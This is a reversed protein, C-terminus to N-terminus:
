HLHQGPKTPDGDDVLVDAPLDERAVQRRGNALATAYAHEWAQIQERPTLHAVLNFLRPSPAMFIPEPTGTESDRQYNSQENMRRHVSMGVAQALAIAQEATPMSINFVRFRSKISDPIRHLDNATAVWFIHSADFEIGASVDTVKSATLPELLSHLPAIPDANHTRRAKDLEDLLILPDARDGLCVMDFVLGVHTNAWNRASGMLSSGTHSVDLSHRHVPRSLARSLEFTFYTKGLGPPGALLIPPLHLSTGKVAALRVQGLILDVVESFHPQAERLNRLEVGIDEPETQFGGIKRFSGITALREYLQQDRERWDRDPSKVDADKILKLPEDWAYVQTQGRKSGRAQQDLQDLQYKEQLRQTEVQFDPKGSKKFASLPPKPPPAEGDEKAAVKAFLASAKKREEEALRRADASEDHDRAAEVAAKSRADVLNDTASGAPLLLQAHALRDNFFVTVHRLEFGAEAALSEEETRRHKNPM